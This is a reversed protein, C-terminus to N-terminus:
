RGCFSCMNESWTCTEANINTDPKNKTLCYACVFGRASHNRSCRGCVDEDFVKVCSRLMFFLQQPITLVFVLVNFPAPL